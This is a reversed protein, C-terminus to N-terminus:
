LVLKGSALVLLHTQNVHDLRHGSNWATGDIFRKLM